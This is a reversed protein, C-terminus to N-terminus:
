SNNKLYRILLVILWLGGTLITLIVDLLISRNKKSGM